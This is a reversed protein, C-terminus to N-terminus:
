FILYLIYPLHFFRSDENFGFFIRHLVLNFNRDKLISISLVKYNPMPEYKNSFNCFLWGVQLFLRPFLYDFYWPVSNFISLEKTILFTHHIHSIIHNLILFWYHFFLIPFWTLINTSALSEPHFLFFYVVWKFILNLHVLIMKLSFSYQM